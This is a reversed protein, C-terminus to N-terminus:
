PRRSVLEGAAMLRLARLKNAVHGRIRADPIRRVWAKARRMGFKGGLDLEPFRGFRRGKRSSLYLCDVLAKEPTAVLFREGGGYWEFGDFLRPDIRHFSVTTVPTRATRTHGTTAAYVVQPIQEIVGHLHLASVFSVYARHSGALPVVLAFPTFRPDTPTCWIGRAARTVLGDREMRGLVQTTASMSGERLAAVERTTFVTRGIRALAQPVTQRTM